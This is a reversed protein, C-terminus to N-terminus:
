IFGFLRFSGNGFVACCAAHIHSRHITYHTRLVLRSVTSVSSLYVFYDVWIFVSSVCLLEGSNSMRESAFLRYPWHSNWLLRAHSWTFIDTSVRPCPRRRSSSDPGDVLVYVRFAVVCPVLTFQGSPRPTSQETWNVTCQPATLSPFLLLGELPVPGSSSM